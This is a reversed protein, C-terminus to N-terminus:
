RLIQARDGKWYALQHPQAAEHYEEYLPLVCVYDERGIICAKGGLTCTKCAMKMADYKTWHCGGVNNTKFNACLASLRLSKQRDKQLGSWM